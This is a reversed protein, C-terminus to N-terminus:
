KAQITSTEVDQVKEEIVLPIGYKNCLEFYGQLQNNYYDLIYSLRQFELSKFEQEYIMNFEEDNVTQDQFSLTRRIRSICREEPTMSLEKRLFSMIYNLEADTQPSFRGGVGVVSHGLYTMEERALNRLYYPLVTTYFDKIRGDQTKPIVGNFYKNYFELLMQEKM